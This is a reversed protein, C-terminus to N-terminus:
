VTAPLFSLTAWVTVPMEIRPFYDESTEMKSRYRIIRTRIEGCIGIALHKQHPLLERRHADPNRLDELTELWVELEKRKGFVIKFDQEWRKFLITKLDYFDAYYILREEVVGTTQTKEETTKRNNWEVIRAPSVGCNEVWNPGLSSSLVIAIFDRLSNEADRLAQSVDM